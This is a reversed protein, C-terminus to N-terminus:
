CSYSAQPMRPEQIKGSSIEYALHSVNIAFSWSIFITSRVLGNPLQVMLGLGEFITLVNMRMDGPKLETDTYYRVELSTGGGAASQMKRCNSVTLEQVFLAVIYSVPTLKPM